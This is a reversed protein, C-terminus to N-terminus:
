ILHGQQSFKRTKKDIMEMARLDQQEMGAGEGVKGEAKLHARLM